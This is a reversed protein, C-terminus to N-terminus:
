KIHRHPGAPRIESNKAALGLRHHRGDVRGPLSRAPTQQRTRFARAAASAATRAAWIVLRQLIESAYDIDMQGIFFAALSRPEFEEHQWLRDALILAASPREFCLPGLRTELRRLVIPPDRFTPLLQRSQITQGARYVRDAYRELLDMLTHEFLDPLDFYEELLAITKNIEALSVATM